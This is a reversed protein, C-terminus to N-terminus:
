VFLRPVPCRWAALALSDAGDPSRGLMKKIEDKSFLQFLGNSSIKYRVFLLEKITDEDPGLTLIGLRLQEELDLYLEARLNFPKLRTSKPGGQVEVAILHTKMHYGLERLRDYLAAGLGGTVEIRVSTPKYDEITQVVRGTSEMTDAKPFSRRDVVHGSQIVTIFTRDEGYRAVDVGVSTEGDHLSPYRRLDLPPFIRGMDSQNYVDQWEALIDYYPREFDDEVPEAEVYEELKEAEPDKEVVGPVVHVSKILRQEDDDTLTGDKGNEMVSWLNQRVVGASKEFRELVRIIEKFRHGRSHRRLDKIQGEIFQASNNFCAIRNWRNEDPKKNKRSLMDYVHSMINVMEQLHDYARDIDKYQILETTFQEKHYPWDSLYHDVLDVQIALDPYAFHEEVETKRWSESKLRGPLKKKTTM